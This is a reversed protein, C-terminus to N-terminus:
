RRTIVTVEDTVGVSTSVAIPFTNRRPPQHLVSRLHQGHVTDSSSECHNRTVPRDNKDGSVNGLQQHTTLAGHPVLSGLPTDRECAGGVRQRLMQASRSQQTSRFSPCARCSTTRRYGGSSSSQIVKSKTILMTMDNRQWQIM